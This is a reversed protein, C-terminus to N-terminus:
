TDSPSIDTSAVLCTTRASRVVTSATSGLALRRLGTLGRTGMVVMDPSTASIHDLIATTPHGEVELTKASGGGLAATAAAVAADNDARGDDVTLVTVEAADALPLAAFVEIAAAAHPSGDACLTVRSAPLENAAVLLPSPPNHLLWETTSGSLLTQLYSITRIGVVMLDADERDALMARPDTHAKLFRVRQGSFESVDREWDPSWTEPTAAEGWVIDEIDATLVDLNWGDWSQAGIWRWARTSPETGDDALVLTPHASASSTM